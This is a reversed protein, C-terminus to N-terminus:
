QIEQYIINNVHSKKLPTNPTNKHWNNLLTLISHNNIEVHLMDLGSMSKRFVIWWKKLMFQM